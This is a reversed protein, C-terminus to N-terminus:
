VVNIFLIVPSVIYLKNKIYLRLLTNSLDNKKITYNKKLKLIKLLSDKYVFEIANKIKM